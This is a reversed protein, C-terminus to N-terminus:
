EAVSFKFTMDFTPYLETEFGGEWMGGIRFTIANESSEETKKLLREELVKAPPYEAPFLNSQIMAGQEDTIHLSLQGNLAADTDPRSVFNEIEVKVDSIESLNTISYTPSSVAGADEHFVAFLLKIPVEVYIEKQTPQGPEQPEISEIAGIYGYVPVIERGESGDAEFTLMDDTNSSGEAYAASPLLLVVCLVAMLVIRLKKRM